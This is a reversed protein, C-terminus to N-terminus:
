CELVEGGDGGANANRWRMEDCEHTNDGMRGRMRAIRVTTYTMGRGRMGCELKRMRSTNNDVYKDKQINSLGNFLIDQQQVEMSPAADCRRTHLCGLRFLYRLVHVALLSCSLM